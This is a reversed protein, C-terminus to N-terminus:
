LEPQFLLFVQEAANVKEGVVILRSGATTVELKKASFSETWVGKRRPSENNIASKEPYKKEKSGEQGGMLRHMWRRIPDWAMVSKFRGQADIYDLRKLTVSANIHKQYMSRGSQEQCELGLLAYAKFLILMSRFPRVSRRVPKEPKVYEKKTATPIVTKKEVKLPKPENMIRMCRIGIEIIPADSNRKKLSSKVSSTETDTIQPQELSDDINEKSNDSEKDCGITPKSFEFARPGDKNRLTKLNKLVQILCNELMENLDKASKDFKAIKFDFGEKEQKVKELETRLLGLQYEKHGVSRSELQSTTKSRLNARCERAFHGMRHCHICESRHNIM